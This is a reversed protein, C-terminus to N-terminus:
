KSLKSIVKRRQPSYQDYVYYEGRSESLFCNFENTPINNISCFEEIVVYNNTKFIEELLQSIRPKIKNMKIKTFHIRVFFLAVIFISCLLSFMSDQAFTLCFCIQLILDIIDFRSNLLYPYYNFAFFEIIFVFSRMFPHSIQSSLKHVIETEEIICNNLCLPEVKKENEQRIREEEELRKKENEQRIREEEELRKKENEQRIREEEEHIRIEEQNNSSDPIEFPPRNLDLTLNDVKQSINQHILCEETKYPTRCFTEPIIMSSLVNTGKEMESYHGGYVIISNQSERMAICSQLNNHSNGKEKMSFVTHNDLNIIISPLGEKEYSVGGFILLNNDTVVSMHDSRPIVDGKIEIKEWSWKDLNLCWLDNLFVNGNRGGFVFMRNDYLSSSHEIRPDPLPGTTTVPSWKPNDAMTDLIWVDNLHSQSPTKGGFCIILNRNVVLSHKYRAPFTLEGIPNWQNELISGKWTEAMQNKNGRGGCIYLYGNVQVIKQGRIVPVPVKLSFSTGQHISINFLEPTVNQGSFSYVSGNFIVSSHETIPNIHKLLPIDKWIFTEDDPPNMSFLSDTFKDLFDKKEKSSPFEVSIQGFCPSSITSCNNKKSTVFSISDVSVYSDLYRFEDIPWDYIAVLADGNDKGLVIHDNFLVLSGTKYNPSIYKINQKLIFIRNAQLTSFTGHMLQHIRYLESLQQARISGAEIERTVSDIKQYACSLLPADPHCKPTFKILERLFLIYRPMRQVPTILLSTIDFGHCGEKLTKLANAVSSNKMYENLKSVINPYESIYLKSVKFFQSFDIFVDACCSDFSSGKAEINTLFVQHCNQITPINKFILPYDNDAFVKKERCSKEWYGTILSLNDIYTKETSIIEKIVNTRMRILKEAQEALLLKLIIPHNQAMDFVTKAMESTPIQSGNIWLEPDSHPFEIQEAIYELLDEVNKDLFDNINFTVDFTTQFGSQESNLLISLAIDDKQEPKICSLFWGPKSFGSFRNNIVLAPYKRLPIEDMELSKKFMPTKIALCSNECKLIELIEKSSKDLFQAPDYSKSSEGFNSIIVHKSM